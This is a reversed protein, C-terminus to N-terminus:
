TSLNHIRKNGQKGYISSIVVFFRIKNKGKLRKIAEGSIKEKFKSQIEM